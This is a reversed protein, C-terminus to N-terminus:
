RPTADENATTVPCSHADSLWPRTSQARSAVATSVSTTSIPRSRRGCIARSSTAWPRAAAVGTASTRQPLVSQWSVTTPVSASMASLARRARSSGGTTVTIPSTTASRSRRAHNSSCASGIPATRHAALKRRRDADQVLVGLPRGAEDGLELPPPQRELLDVVGVVAVIRAVAPPAVGDDHVARARRRVAAAVRAHEEVGLREQAVVFREPDRHDIGHRGVPELLGLRELHLEELPKAERIRRRDDHVVAGLEDLRARAEPSWPAHRTSGLGPSVTARQSAGGSTTSATSASVRAADMSM